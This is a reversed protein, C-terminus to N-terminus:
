CSGRKLLVAPVTMVIIWLDLGITRRRAYLSDMAVRRRYGVSSRGSVQWLGTIGPKVAHYHRLRAGYRGTESEVIPRPGVLNMEGRVLNVLQPLEDLSTRRLFDGLPTVRPDRRLKQHEAWEARAAPDSALLDALRAQADTRMSRFKLCEFPQGRAGIRRHKFLVPGGDQAVVAVATVLMVPLLFLLILLGLLRQALEWMLQADVDEAAAARTARRSGATTPTNFEHGDRVISSM